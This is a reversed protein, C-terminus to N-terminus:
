VKLDNVFERWSFVAVKISFIDIGFFVLFIVFVMMKVALPKWSLLLFMEGLGSIWSELRFILLSVFVNGFMIYAM